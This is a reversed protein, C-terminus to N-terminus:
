DAFQCRDYNGALWPFFINRLLRPPYLQALNICHVELCCIRMRTTQKVTDFNIKAKPGMNVLKACLSTLASPLWWKPIGMVCISGLGPASHSSYPVPSTWLTTSPLHFFYIQVVHSHSTPVLWRDATIGLKSTPPSFNQIERLTSRNYVSPWTPLSCCRQGWM